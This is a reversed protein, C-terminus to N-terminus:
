GPRVRLSIDALTSPVSAVTPTRAGGLEVDEVPDDGVADEEVQPRRRCRAGGVCREARVLQTYITSSGGVRKAGARAPKPVPVRDDSSARRPEADEDRAAGVAEAGVAPAEQALEGAFTEAPWDFSAGECCVGFESPAAAWQGDAAARPASAADRVREPAAAIAPQRQEVQTGRLFADIRRVSVATKATIYVLDPIRNLPQARAAAVTVRM